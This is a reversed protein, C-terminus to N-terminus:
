FETPLSGVQAKLSAFDTIGQAVLSKYISYVSIWEYPSVVHIGKGEGLEKLKKQHSEIEGLKTALTTTQTALTTTQTAITALSNKIETSNSAITGLATAISSYYESYDIPDGAAM